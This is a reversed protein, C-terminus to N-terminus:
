LYQKAANETQLSRQLQKENNSLQEKQVKLNEKNFLIQLFANAINLSVDDKIKSVGVNSGCKCCGKASFTWSCESWSTQLWLLGKKVYGNKWKKGENM